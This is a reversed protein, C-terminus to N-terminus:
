RRHLIVILGLLEFSARLVRALSSEALGLDDLFQQQEEANLRSIEEEIPASSAVTRSHESSAIGMEEPDAEAIQDEGVNIVQLIPKALLLQFGRLLKEDAPELPIERLTREEELAPLIVESLLGQQRKEDVPLGKVRASKMLRELRREVIEHDALILELDLTEVDRAPDVSGEPHPLEPDDFARVVHVLANVNRLEALDLSEKGESKQIGPIDVYEM